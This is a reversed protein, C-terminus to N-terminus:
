DHSLSEVIPTKAARHAPLLAAAIGSAGALAIFAAVQLYPVAFVANDDMARTAALGFAIGLTVGTLAGIVAMVLAETSLMRRLGRRTLGLARLLASERTREVVSLSLTNAIGFLAIVIALGLLGGFIMLVVDISETMQKKMEAASAVEVTPYGSTVADIARRAAPPSVGDRIKVFVGSPAVAGFARTFDAETMLVGTLVGAPRYVGAVRFAATGDRGALTTRSGARLGLDKATTEDVILTGPHFAALSGATFDPRVLTGLAPAGLAYVTRDSGGVRADRERGEAVAGFEPRARLKATLGAPFAPTGGDRLHRANVQFDMPFHEDVQRNSTAKGGAAVVAFLTMLGVGVTLAITTTATRRPSRRANAVALRGTVGGVRAPLAGVARGLPGVLVPMLAIVALFFLAGGGAVAYMAAEGPAMGVTGLATAALGAGGFVVILLVRAVGPRFRGGAPEREGRLAAVPAVRTAAAAPAVAAAVTVVLGVAVAVLATRATVVVDSPPLHGGMGRILALAGAGLGTGAALGVASGVLGVVAAELLVSRFVQRRTAGVCRLLAMERTRQAILISFTNYIVLASVLMAVLAFLLLGARLVKTDLGNSRALLAGLADGTMTRYGPGVAAAVGAVDGGVTDIEAYGRAGTVVPAVAPTFGVAGRGNVRSDVGADFVGSLRFRRPRDKPDLVTVTDGVRFGERKATWGDLVAEDPAAPARGDEMRYRLLRGSPMSLGAAPEGRLVRGNKGVLPADGFVVGHADAVGPARRVRELLGAPLEEKGQPPLVAVDVKDASRAFSAAVGRDIMDTLVFTGAVFGVGLTIAVVTSLLRLRHAALGALTTRLM